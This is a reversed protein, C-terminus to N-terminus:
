RFSTGVATKLNANGTVAPAINAGTTAAPAGSDLNSDGVFLLM